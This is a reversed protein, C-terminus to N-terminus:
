CPNWWEPQLPHMKTQQHEQFDEWADLLNNPTQLTSPAKHGHCKLHSLVLFIAFEVLAQMSCSSALYLLFSVTASKPRAFPYNWPSSHGTTTWCLKRVTKSHKWCHHQLIRVSSAMANIGEARSQTTQPTRTNTIDWHASLWATCCASLLHCSYHNLSAEGVVHQHRLNRISEM